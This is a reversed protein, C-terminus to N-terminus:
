KEGTVDGKEKKKKARKGKGEEKKVKMQQIQGKPKIRGM